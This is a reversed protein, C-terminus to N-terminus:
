LNAGMNAEYLGLEMENVAAILNENTLESKNFWKSFTKIKFIRKKIM